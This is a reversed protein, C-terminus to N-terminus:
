AVSAGAALQDVGGPRNVPGGVHGADPAKGDDDHVEPARPELYVWM